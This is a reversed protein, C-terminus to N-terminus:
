GAPQHERGSSGSWPPTSIRMIMSPGRRRHALALVFIVELLTGTSGALCRGARLSSPQGRIPEAGGSARHAATPLPLLGFSAGLVTGEARGCRGAADVAGPRAAGRSDSRTRVSSVATRIADARAEGSRDAPKRGRPPSSRRLDPGCRGSGACARPPQRRTTASSRRWRASAAMQVSNSCLSGSRRPWLAPARRMRDSCARPSCRRAGPMARPRSRPPSSARGPPHRRSSRHPGNRVRPHQPCM